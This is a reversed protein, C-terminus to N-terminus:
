KLLLMPRSQTFRGAELRFLYLGSPLHGGDFRVTHWGAGQPGDALRAVERGLVDFVHLRVTADEPLGYRITTEPNFPNPYAGELVYTDPVQAQPTGAKGAAAELTFTRNSNDKLAPDDVSTIRVKYDSGPELDTPITWDYSGDSETNARINQLFMNGKTLLITVLGDLNDQWTIPVTTGMTFVEGGNPSLVGIFPSAGAALTFSADSNDKLSSNDASTVRVKYNAGPLLDTPITWDYSGDNETLNKIIRLSVNDQLLRLQVEGSVESSTWTITQTEGLNWTEGGNPSTLTLTAPTQTVEFIGISGSVEHSLVLLDTGTPSDVAPIFLVGEPGLDGATDMEPDGSFNRNNAYTKYLPQTPDTVDYVMVGGIRELGIFAYTRGGIQGLALGEPEPGKDDSRSETTTNDDNNKNFDNPYITALTQEFADGSDFVLTGTTADWVSFSRAGYSYLQDFDGDHDTDGLQDTTRLRGLNADLKLTAADPFVTPDLTLDKIRREESFGDYARADGENATVLYTQGGVEFAAIADPLYLGRVPWSAINILNDKDSADLGNGMANHDKFSLAAIGDVTATAVDVVALANNEQLTVYAKSGDPSLAIYEPELDQAVTAGPGYIRVEAPLEGNRPGGVNFDTFGVTTVTATAVGGSLDVISVSGEPDVTYDDSPEGENATLVKTGDPTFTVMDPLVGVAVDHLYTGDTDFFVVTGAGDTTAAEVAVAVVGSHVAVSNVGGGYVSLDITTIETPASPDSLDLITLENLDASTFFLRATTPDFASIEAAGADFRGTAFRGIHNLSIGQAAALFPTFFAVFFLLCRYLRGKTFLHMM